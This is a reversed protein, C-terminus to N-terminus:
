IESNVDEKWLPAEPSAMAEKYTQPEEETLFSVFDPGFSKPTKTMKGRKPEVEKEQVGSSSPENPNGDHVKRKNSGSRRKPLPVQVKALCGWVKLTNNTPIRGKWMENPSQKSKKHPIRNLIHNATLLAEGWLNHPLGSSNLM